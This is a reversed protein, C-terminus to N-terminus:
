RNLEKRVREIYDRQWALTLSSTFDASVAYHASVLNKLRIIEKRQREERNLAQELKAVLEASLMRYDVM